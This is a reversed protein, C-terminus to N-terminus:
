KTAFPDPLWWGDPAPKWEIVPATDAVTETQAQTEQRQRQVERYGAREREYREATRDHWDAVGYEEAVRSLRGDPNVQYTAPPKGRDGSSRAGSEHALEHPVLKTGLTRRVTKVAVGLRAAIDAATSDPHDMLDLWVRESTQGLASRLFAPHNLSTTLGYSGKGGAVSGHPSTIDRIGWGLNLVWRQAHTRDERSPPTGAFSM